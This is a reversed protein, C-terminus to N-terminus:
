FFPFRYYPPPDSPSAPRSLMRAVAGGAKRLVRHLAARRPPKKVVEDIIRNAPARPSTAEPNM